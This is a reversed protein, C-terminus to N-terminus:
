TAKKAASEKGNLFSRLCILAKKTKSETNNVYCFGEEEIKQSVKKRRETRSNALSLVNEM